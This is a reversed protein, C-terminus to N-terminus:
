APLAEYGLARIEADHVGPEAEPAAIVHQLGRIVDLVVAGAVPMTIEADGTLLQVLPGDPSGLFVMKGARPDLVMYGRHIRMGAVDIAHGDPAIDTM